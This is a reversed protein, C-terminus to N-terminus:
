KCNEATSLYATPNFNMVPKQVATPINLFQFTRSTGMCFRCLLTIAAARFVPALLWYQMIEINAEIQM